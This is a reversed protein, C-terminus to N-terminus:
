NTKDLGFLAPNEAMAKRRASGDKIALIDEKTIVNGKGNLKGGMDIRVNPNAKAVLGALDGSILADLTTTDKINEGDLELAEIEAGCSRMALNLNAGEINKGEFYARAAKEKAAKTEKAEIGSKYSDFEKKVNDHKEKWGDDGKAKLDDLERQITPLKEADGKYKEIDAKLGDVTEAHADIIQDIKEEEIGMAKLMKRTLAM